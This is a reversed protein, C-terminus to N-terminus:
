RSKGKKREMRGAEQVKEDCASGAEDAGMENFPGNLIRSDLFEDIEVREGVGSVGGVECGDGVMRAVVELLGVEPVFVGNQADDAVVGDGVDDVEGGLGMHVIGDGIGVGEDVGVDGAGEM